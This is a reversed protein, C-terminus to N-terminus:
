LRSAVCGAAPLCLGCGGGGCVSSAVCGVAPLGVLLWCCLRCCLFCVSVADKLCCVGCETLLVLFLSLCYRDTVGDVNLQCCSGCGAVCSFMLLIKVQTQTKRLKEQLDILRRQHECQKEKM